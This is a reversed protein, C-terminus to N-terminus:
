LLLLWPNEILERIKALFKAAEAGDLIRHDAALTITSMPRVTISGDRAVARDEVAGLGLICAEPPNVIPAFSKTGFMGLNTITFTGGQMD